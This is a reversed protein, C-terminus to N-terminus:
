IIKHCMITYSPKFQWIARLTVGNSSSILPPLHNCFIDKNLTLYVKNRKYNQNLRNGSPKVIIYIIISKTLWTRNISKERSICARHVPNIINYVVLDWYGVYQRPHNTVSISWIRYIVQCRKVKLICYFYIFLQCTRYFCLVNITNINRSLFM